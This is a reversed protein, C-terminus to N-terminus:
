EVPLARRLRLGFALLKPLVLLALAIMMVSSVLPNAFFIGLKGDSLVTSQHFANESKYGLVMALILPALSLEAQQVSLRRNRLDAGAVSRLDREAGHLGWSASRVIIPEIILFLVRLLAAFLPGAALVLIVGLLNSVYM